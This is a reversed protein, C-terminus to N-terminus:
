KSFLIIYTSAYAVPGPRFGFPLEEAEAYSSLILSPRWTKVALVKVGQAM